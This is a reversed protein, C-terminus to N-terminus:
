YVELDNFLFNVAAPCSATDERGSCLSGLDSGCDTSMGPCSLLHFMGNQVYQHSAVSGKQFAGGFTIAEVGWICLFYM